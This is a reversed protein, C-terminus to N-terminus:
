IVEGAAKQNTIGETQKVPLVVIFRTGKGPTSQANISGNHRAVIKKCISLGIGTGEYDSRGHLRQFVGFIRDTYKEDFGIGNDEVTIEYSDRVSSHNGRNKGTGNVFIGSVKIVPPEDKKIFKLSNGILNQLLQRMQLPDADIVELKDVEIRAGAQEIRVELDSVVERTVEALDVPAFPQAKTMVRSFTLLDNILTQMRTAAGQMRELYDRGVDGLSESYKTKLRDGFTTVKRLPEQLDHSAVYAFQELEENSKKLKQSYEKLREKSNNREIGIAIEDAVSSLANLTIEKLPDYHFLAVVGVLKDAVVLPHGAFATLGHQRAWEPQGIEPDEHLNNTLHPVRELAILGIKSKGVPIRRHSVDLHTHIGSSAQLELENGNENLTWIRAFAAHLNIVISDTCSQLVTQLDDSQTLAAGVDALLAAHHMREALEAETQKRATIDRFIGQTAVFRGDKFQVNINGEVQIIKGQRTLFETEVQGVPEGACLKRFIEACYPKHDDSLVDMFTMNRVDDMTYGTVDLWKKNVYLFRGNIDVSQILDSATELLNRYQEESDKIREEAKRRDSIDRVIHILGILQNNSDIRPIASIEVFRDLHPEFIEFVAPERTMLCNCSPCGEPPMESGHYYQFCKAKNDTLFPLGLISEAAKNARIINYNKDHVTVMDTITNFTDEWDQKIQLLIDEAKKREIAEALINSVAQLFKIDNGSFTRKVETHAGLVGYPNEHDGITVSMGSVIGHEILISALGFRTETGAEHVIVPETSLLTYGAHSDKGAPIRVNGVLGKKWGVGARLIFSGEGARFELVKCFKIGLTSAVLTVAVDMLEDLNDNMLACHGLKVIVEQQNARAILEDEANRLSTIDQAVCVVGQVTGSAGHMISASLMVPVKRGDKAAYITERNGIFGTIFEHGSFFGDGPCKEDIVTTVPLGVLEEERFGLLMNAATNTRLIIGEPSTVILTDMMSNIINDVYDTSVTKKKLDDAMQNFSRALDGIEDKSKIDIRTEMNGGSVMEVLKKLKLLPNTISRSLLVAIFIAVLTVFFTIILAAGSATRYPTIINHIHDSRIGVHITGAQIIGERVPVAIDYVSLGQDSIIQLIYEKGAFSTNKRKVLVKPIDNTYTHALLYGKSDLVMIYEIKDERLSKENFLVDTIKNIKKEIVARSLHNALSKAFIVESTRLREEQLNELVHSTMYINAAAVLLILLVFGLIIKYTIKM